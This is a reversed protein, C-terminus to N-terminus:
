VSTSTLLGSRWSEYAILESLTGGLRRFLLSLGWRSQTQNPDFHSTLAEILDM